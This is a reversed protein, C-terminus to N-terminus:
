ISYYNKPNYDKVDSEHIFVLFMYIFLYIFLWHQQQMKSYIIVGCQLFCVAHLNAVCM